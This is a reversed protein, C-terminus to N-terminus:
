LAAAGSDSDGDVQSVRPAGRPHNGLLGGWGEKTSVFLLLVTGADTFKQNLTAPKVVGLSIHHSTM